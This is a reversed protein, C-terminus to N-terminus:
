ASKGGRLAQNIANRVLVEKENSAKQLVATSAPSAIRGLAMAACARTEPDERRGLMSRSTLITELIGIGADGCISGYLEFLAMKETLDADKASKNKIVGEVRALAPRYARSALARLAAVRVDRDSDNVARELSQLAGPSAIEALANVAALRAQTSGDSLVKALSQVAAQTKLRAAHRIAEISVTPDGGGILRVLESTNAASLRAGASELLARLQASQVKGLWAFVTGLAAPRLEGLLESLEDQPPLESSEDLSQLLQSLAAADSLRDPLMALRDRHPAELARARTVSEGAERLLYAVSRFNGASLLHVLFNDLIGTIEDRIKGDAQTEFIDLLTALVTRRLDSAYENRVAHQLYEIEREDLFYLTTDFDAM